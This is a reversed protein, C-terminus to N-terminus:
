GPRLLQRVHGPGFPRGSRNQIASVALAGTIARLSRGEGRLDRIMGLVRQEDALAELHVGDEGVRFGHPPRGGTYEGQATKLADGGVHARRHGRAGM